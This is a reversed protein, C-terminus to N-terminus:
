APSRKGTMEDIAVHIIAVRDVDGDSFDFSRGAYHDMIIKL